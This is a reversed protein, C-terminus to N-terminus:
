KAPVSFELRLKERGSHNLGRFLVEIRNGGQDNVEVLGFQGEGETPLEPPVSWPGGKLSGKQDLPAAQLVPFGPGRRNTAYTNHSGDDAALMHADGGLFCVGTIANAVMWDSLERREATYRGWNDRQTTENSIWAVSSVVFVLPHHTRAALLEAKLWQKQWAGLMTKQPNDPADEPDRETRTDLVIFRVRGVTFAHAIPGDPQPNSALPYHPVYERYTGHSAARSPSHRDSGNPGYDHDDWVYVLPVNRYLEAQTTSALVREYASRFPARDDTAIDEYHLDGTCLYFLPDHYKIEAFVAHESGTRACSAFAFTFSAPENEVPFTVFTGRHDDDRDTGARIRYYYRTAPKLGTARFHAMERQDGPIETLEGFSVRRMFDRDESVELTALRPTTLKAVVVASESTM